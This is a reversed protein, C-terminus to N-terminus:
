ETIILLYKNLNETSVIICTLGTHRVINYMYRVVVSGIVFSRSRVVIFGLGVFVTGSGIIVSGSVVVVYRSRIVIGSGNTKFVSTTKVKM